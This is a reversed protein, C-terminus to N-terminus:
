GIKPNPKGSKQEMYIADIRLRDALQSIMALAEARTLYQKNFFNNVIVEDSAKPLEPEFGPAPLTDPIDM